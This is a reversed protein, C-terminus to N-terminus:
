HMKTFFFYMHKYTICHLITLFIHMSHFCHKDKLLPNIPLKYKRRTQMSGGWGGASKRCNTHMMKM